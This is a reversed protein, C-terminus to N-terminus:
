FTALSTVIKATSEKKELVIQKFVPIVIKLVEKRFIMFIFDVLIKKINCLIQKLFEKVNKLMDILGNVSTLLTPNSIILLIINLPSLFVSQILSHLIYKIFKKFFNDKIATKNDTPSLNKETSKNIINDFVNNLNATNDKTLIDLLNVQANFDDLPLFSEIDGCVLDYKTIGKIKNQLENELDSIESDTFTFLQTDETTNNILKDLIKEFQIENTLNTKSKNSNLTSFIKNLITSILHKSDIINSPILNKFFTNSDNSSSNIVEVVNLTEKYKFTLGNYLYDQNPKRLCENYFDKSFGDNSYSTLGESSNPDNKFLGFMDILKIPIQLTQSVIPLNNSTLNDLMINRISSSYTPIFKGLVGGIINTLYTTGFTGVIIDLLYGIEDNKNSSLSSLSSESDNNITTSNKISTFVKLQNIVDNKNNFTAM